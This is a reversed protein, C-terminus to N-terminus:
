KGRYSQNKDMKWRKPSSHPTLYGNYTKPIETHSPEQWLLDQAAECQNLNQQM